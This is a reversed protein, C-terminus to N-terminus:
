KNMIWLDDYPGVNGLLSATNKGLKASEQIWITVRTVSWLKKATLRYLAARSGPM